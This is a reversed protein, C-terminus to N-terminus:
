HAFTKGPDDTSDVAAAPVLTQPATAATSNACSKSTSAARLQNMDLPTNM